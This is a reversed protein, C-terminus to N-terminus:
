FTKSFVFFHTKDFFLHQPAVGNSVGIKVRVCARVCACNFILIVSHAPGAAEGEYRSGTLLNAEAYANEDADAPVDAAFQRKNAHMAALQQQQQQQKQQQLLQQQQQQQKNLGTREDGEDEESSSAGHGSSAHAEWKAANRM